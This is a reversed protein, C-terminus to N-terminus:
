RKVNRRGYAELAAKAFPVWRRLQAIRQGDSPHTSLIAPPHPRRESIRQMKEWFVIAQNPDYGAFTMLFVGIHDAESEQERDYRRAYLRAGGGLLGIIRDRIQPNMSGLFGGVGRLAHDFMGERALRESAHHALAHGVEHGIVTALQDDNTAVELLGTYVIVECAPLCFANVQPDDIVNFNWDYIYNKIDYNIERALLEIYAARKIREGVRRVRQVRPDSPNLLKGKGKAESLVQQYAQRGLSLEQSPTLALKQRRRGPGQGERGGSPMCGGVTVALAAVIGIMAVCM